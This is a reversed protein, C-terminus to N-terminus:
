KKIEEFKPLGQKSISYPKNGYVGVPNFIFHIKKYIDYCVKAEEPANKGSIGWSSNLGTLKPFLQKQIRTLVLDGVTEGTFDKLMGLQGCKMRSYFNLAWMVSQVQEGNLILRYKKM